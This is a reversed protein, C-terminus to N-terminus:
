FDYFKGPPPPPPMGGPGGLLRAIRASEGRVPVRRELIRSGGSTPSNTKWQQDGSPYDVLESRTSEGPGPVGEDRILPPTCSKQKQATPACSIATTNSRDWHSNCSLGVIQRVSVHQPAKQVRTQDREDESQPARLDNDGFRHHVGSIRNEPDSQLTVEGYQGCFRTIGTAEKSLQFAQEAVEKCKDIILLDDLYSVM